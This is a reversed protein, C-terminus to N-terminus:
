YALVGGSSIFVALRLHYGAVVNSFKPSPYIVTTFILLLGEMACLISFM